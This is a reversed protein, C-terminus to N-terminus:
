RLGEKQQDLIEYLFKLDQLDKPRAAKEKLDILHQIGCIRIDIGDYAVPMAEQILLDYDIPHDIFIDVVSFPSKGEIFSLVVMNRTKWQARTEAISLEVPDVPMRPSFGCERLSDALAVVNSHDFRVILDLDLTARRFGHANVAVGGVVVFDVETAVLRALINAFPDRM